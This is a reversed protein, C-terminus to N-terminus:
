QRVHDTSEVDGNHQVRSEPGTPSFRVMQIWGRLNLLFHVGYFIRIRILIDSGHPLQQLKLQLESGLSPTLSLISVIMTGCFRIEINLVLKILMQVM